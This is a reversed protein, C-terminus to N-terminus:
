IDFDFNKYLIFKLLFQLFFDLHIKTLNKEYQILRRLHNDCITILTHVTLMGHLKTILKLMLKNNNWRPSIEQYVQIKGYLSTERSPATKLFCLPPYLM